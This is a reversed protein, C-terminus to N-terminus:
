VTLKSAVTWLQLTMTLVTLRSSAHSQQQLEGADVM